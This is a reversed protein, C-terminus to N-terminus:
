DEDDALDEGSVMRKPIHLYKAEATEKTDSPLVVCVGIMDTKANLDYRRTSGARAKSDKDICYLILLPTNGLGAIIRMRGSNQSTKGKLSDFEKKNEPSMSDRDVDAILDSPNSLSAIMAYRDNKSRKKRVSRSIMGVELNDSIEFKKENSDVSGFVVNWNSLDRNKMWKKLEGIESFGNRDGGQNFDFREMFEKFVTENPVNRWVPDSKQISSYEWKGAKALFDRVVRMNSEQFDEDDVLSPTSITQGSFDFDEVAARRKNAATVDVLYGVKSFKKVLPPFEEPTYIDYYSRIFSRLAYDVDASLQFDDYTKESMWIRPLLEYGPRYGFWRGMQILTDMQKVSRGFYSSVLGEITLGRSLTNGGVVIFATAFGLEKKPYILRPMVSEWDGPLTDGSSNDICIHIGRHYKPEGEEDIQINSANFELLEEIHPKIASFEPYGNIEKENIGFGGPYDRCLDPASIFSKVKDYVAQCRSITIIGNNRGLCYQIAEAMKKHDDKRMSTHVLMSVPKTYERFRQVGVCCVFWCLAEVLGPQAQESGRCIARAENDVSFETSVINLGPAWDQDPLGFIETQGFYTNPPRLVTIFNRPYLSEESGESLFNAYPTATYCVYNMAEYDYNAAGSSKKGSRSINNVMQVIWRNVAKREKDPKATNISAQDAEDDILLIRLSRKNKDSNLWGYLDKLRSSNKLCVCLYAVGDSEGLRMKSLLNQADNKKPNELLEFRIDSEQSRLDDDLRDRTQIRLSDITGTLVIFLNWGNDAAMAILGAMNATKGSQVSGVVMGKVPNDKTEKKLHKLINFCEAEIRDVSSESFNKEHLLRERYLQWCSFEGKPLDVKSCDRDSLTNSEVDYEYEKRREEVKRVSDVLIIWQEKDVIPCSLLELSQRFDASEIKQEIKDWPTDNKSLNKILNKLVEYQDSDPDFPM